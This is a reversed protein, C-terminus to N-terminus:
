GEARALDAIFARMAAAVEVPKELPVLHGGGQIVRVEARGLGQAVDFPTTLGLVKDNDGTIVLTPLDLGNSRASIDQRSGVQMWWIWARRDVSVEDDVCSDFVEPSLSHDTIKEIHAKAADRDAFDDITKQRESEEMPEPTPPSPAILILGLLNPPRRAALDIVIKGGMSHGILVFPREGAHALLLGAYTDLDLDGTAATGGFGALNPAACQFEPGLAEILPAWSRGSGGFYHAFVLRPYTSDQM